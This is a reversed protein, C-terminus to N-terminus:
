RYQTIAHNLASVMRNSVDDLKFQNIVDSGPEFSSLQNERWVSIIDNLVNFIAQENDSDVVWNGMKRLLDASAGKAPTLGLIPKNLIMYDVIKSPLFVSESAPADVLLLVDAGAAISQSEFYPKAGTIVVVDSLEMEAVNNQFEEDVFGVFEFVLNERNFGSELLRKIADLMCLPQRLSYLNGAHVIRLVEKDNCVPQIYQSLEADFSHPVIFVKENWHEPYKHMVLEATYANTFMIADAKDIIECEQNCAEKREGESSFSTYPSDVWPDSFHAVWPLKKYKKKLMLGVLHDSWPQAFTLLVDANGSMKQKKLSCYARRRWNNHITNAPKSAKRQMRVWWSSPQIEERVELREIEYYPAYISELLADQEAHLEAAPEVTIVRTKWGRQSLGKLARSIQISRPFVLPPMAWSLALINKNMVDLIGDLNGTDALEM